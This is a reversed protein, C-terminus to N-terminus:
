LVQQPRVNRESHAFAHQLGDGPIAEDALITNQGAGDPLEDLWCGLPYM